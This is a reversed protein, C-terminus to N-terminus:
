TRVKLGMKLSEYEELLASHLSGKYPVPNGEELSGFLIIPLTHKSAGVISKLLEKLLCIFGQRNALEIGLQPGDDTKITAYWYFMAYKLKELVLKEVKNGQNQFYLATKRIAAKIAPQVGSAFLMETVDELYYIKLSKLDVPTDLNLDSGIEKTMVKLLPKLDTAYRTLPGTVLLQKLADNAPIPYHDHNPTTMSTPKHGFIGSFSAPIRISGAFDSGLGFVSGAASIAASEGGSSGGPTHNTNYPNNTRGYLPNYTEWWCCMEPTNTVALPIAGAKRILAVVPADNAAIIHQRSHIGSTHKMGKVALSEKVTCPVGLFPQSEKLEKETQHTSSLFDDVKEAEELAASFRNEVIVNLIPHIAELRDIYVQVIEKSKVERKRIKNALQTASQRLLPNMAPPVPKLPKLKKLHLIIQVTYHILGIILKLISELLFVM